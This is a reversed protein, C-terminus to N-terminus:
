VVGVLTEKPNCCVDCRIVHSMLIELIPLKQLGSKIWLTCNQVQVSFPRNEDVLFMTLLSRYVNQFMGHLGRDGGGETWRWIRQLYNPPRM